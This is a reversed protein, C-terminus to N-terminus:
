ILIRAIISSISFVIKLKKIGGSGEVVGIGVVVVVVDVVVTVEVVVDTIVVGVVAEVVIDVADVVANVVVVVIDEDAAVDMTGTRSVVEEINFRKNLM